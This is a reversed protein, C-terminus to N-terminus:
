LNDLLPELVGRLSQGHFQIRLHQQRSEKEIIPVTSQPLNTLGIENSRNAVSEWTRTLHYLRRKWVRRIARHEERRTTFSIHYFSDYINLFQERTSM